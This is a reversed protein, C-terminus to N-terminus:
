RAPASARGLQRRVQEIVDPLAGVAGRRVLWRPLRGGPDVAVQYV